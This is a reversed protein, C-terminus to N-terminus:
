LYTVASAPLHSSCAKSPVMRAPLNEVSLLVSQSEPSCDGMEERPAFNKAKELLKLGHLPDVLIENRL